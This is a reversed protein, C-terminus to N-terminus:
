DAQPQDEEIWGEIELYVNRLEEKMEDSAQWMGRQVAELLRETINQLAHPNVNKLWEQMEKDLAYKNALEEYMWDELVEATADWGFSIDVARSFDAAGKYGHALMSEIWKPNLIRTRFIHKTEEVTSRTKVREPDSSDGCYSRPLDGKISKVAAIMGGHFSYFDDGDLMDIERTDENKVTLDLSGLRRKFEESVTAGFSKRGYAYGGWVVYVEALDHCDKWSKSEVAASVGAGYTGPRSGFIRYGAEERAKEECIGEKIKEKMRLDVHHALHNEEPSEKLGAVMQVAEDMLEVINPFSDRFIGSIRVTVDIRPRGLEQLSILELGDIRGSRDEWVPRVGMLYLIEAVEDGYTRMTNTSWLIIGINEPYKGEDLIYRELLSQAQLIGVKWAARTPIARPDLSYFNRGTPLIDAMGRTPAGSPGPPVYGGSAAKLISDLEQTTEELRPVLSECIYSLVQEVEWSKKGLIKLQVTEIESRDFNIRHLEEILRLSND